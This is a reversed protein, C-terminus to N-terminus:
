YTYILSLHFRNEPNYGPDSAAIGHELNFLLGWHKKLGPMNLKLSYDVFLLNYMSGTKWDSHIVEYLLGLGGQPLLSLHRLDFRKGVLLVNSASIYEYSLHDYVRNSVAPHRAARVKYHVDMGPFRIPILFGASIGYDVDYARPRFETKGGVSSTGLFLSGINEGHLPLMFILILVHSIIRGAGSTKNM